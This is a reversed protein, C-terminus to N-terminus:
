GEATKKLLDDAENKDMKNGVIIIPLDPDVSNRLETVWAEVKEFSDPCTLDYVVIAGIL